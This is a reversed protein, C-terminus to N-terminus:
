YKQKNNMTMNNNTRHNGLSNDRNNHHRKTELYQLENKYSSKYITENYFEKHNNFTKQLHYDIIRINIVNPIQKIMSTPHNSSVNIYRPITNFKNFPKYSNDNLNLIVDLFNVIKLNLSIEIKLGMYKFAIIVQKQIKCTLAKNSNPISILCNDRYISFSNLNIFRGLTDLIYIGVLDAIQTSNFSGMTVEFNNTTMKEWTTYNNILVSKKCALIDLEEQTINTYNKALNISQLLLEKTLFPYFDIIDFQIFAINKKHKINQFWKIIDLSNQLIHRLNDLIKTVINQIINKIDIQTQNKNFNIKLNMM